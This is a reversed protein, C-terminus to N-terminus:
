SQLWRFLAPPLRRRGAVADCIHQISVGTADRIEYKRMRKLRRGLERQARAYAQEDYVKPM